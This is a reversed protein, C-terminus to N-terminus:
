STTIDSTRTAAVFPMPEDGEDKIKEDKQGKIKKAYGDKNTQRSRAIAFAQDPVDETIVSGAATFSDEGVTLPAVLSSNSGVYAKDKITTTAKTTGTHNCTITGAGINVDKGVKADGLYTLHKAKTNAGVTSRKVEVFNGITTNAGLSVDEHVHAFPGIESHTAITANTVISHPHITVNDAITSNKIISFAEVFCNKGISSGRLIQVGSGIHTGAEITVDHDIHINQAVTFRVGRDMWDRILEARKIHEATWMEKFTNVGRIHDFPATTTTIIRNEESAINILDTIYFEEAANDNTLKTISEELFSRKVLYIGANICCHESISGEFDRAEVVSVRGEINIIRGYASTPDTNHATVFSIDANKKLHQTYLKEIIESSVLPIDGNMILLHEKTWTDQTCLLAHGTGLQEEQIVFDITDNHYKKVVNKIKDAEYGVVLTTPIRCEQLLKTVYILMERGCIKQTLKSAGTKLRRSKGAALVVAQVVKKTM